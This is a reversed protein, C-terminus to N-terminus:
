KLPLMPKTTRGLRSPSAAPVYDRARTEITRSLEIITLLQTQTKAAAKTDFVKSNQHVPSHAFDYILKSLLRIAADFKDATDILKEFPDATEALNGLAMLGRLTKASKNITRATKNLQKNTLAGAEHERLMAQSTTQLNRFNQTFQQKTVAKQREAEFSRPSQAYSVSALTVLWGVLLPALLLSSSLIIRREATM